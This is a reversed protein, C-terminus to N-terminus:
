EEDNQVETYAEQLNLLKSIHKSKPFNLDFAM